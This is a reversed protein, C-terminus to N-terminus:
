GHSPYRSRFLYRGRIDTEDDHWLFVHPGPYRPLRRARYLRRYGGDARRDRARDPRPDARAPSYQQLRSRAVSNWATAMSSFGSETSSIPTPGAEFSM